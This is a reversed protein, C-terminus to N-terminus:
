CKYYVLFYASDVDNHQYSDLKTTKYQVKYSKTVPYRMTCISFHLLRKKKLHHVWPTRHARRVKRFKGPYEGFMNASATPYITKSIGSIEIYSKDKSRLARTPCHNISLWEVSYYQFTYESPICLSIFPSILNITM